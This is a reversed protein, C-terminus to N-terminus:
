KSGKKKKTENIKKLKENVCDCNRDHNGAMMIFEKGLCRKCQQM